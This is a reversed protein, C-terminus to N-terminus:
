LGATATKNYSFFVKGRSILRASLLLWVPHVNSRGGDRGINNAEYVQMNYTTFHFCFPYKKDAVVLLVRVRFLLRASESPGMECHPLVLLM